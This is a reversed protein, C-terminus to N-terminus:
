RGTFYLILSLISIFATYIGFLYFRGKKIINLLLKIAIYGTIFSSIFGTILIVPSIDFSVIDKLKFIFAGIIIPVSLLFSFDAAKGKEMNCAMGTFITSGSRSIGPIISIAQAIGIAIGSKINIKGRRNEFLKSLFLIITTIALGIAVILLNNFANEIFDNFLVGIIIAPILAVILILVYSFRKSSLHYGGKDVIIRGKFLALILQLIENYYITIVALATALHLTIDFLIPPQNFGTLKQVIVLHGSSSVPLFETLGQVIGILAAKLIEM